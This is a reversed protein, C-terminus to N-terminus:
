QTAIEFKLLHRGILLQDGDGVMAPVDIRVFTGNSSGVDRLTVGEPRVTFVAHRGSVFGDGPFSIDGTERGVLNEGEKLTYAHGRLGGELVQV